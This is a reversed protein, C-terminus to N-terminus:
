LVELLVNKRDDFNKEFEKLKIEFDHTVAGLNDASASRIEIAMNELDDIATILSWDYELLRAMDDGALAIPALSAPAGPGAYQCKKVIIELEIDLSELYPLTLYEGRKSLELSKANIENKFKRIRDVILNRIIADADHSEARDAYGKFGPLKASIRDIIDRNERLRKKLDGLNPQM